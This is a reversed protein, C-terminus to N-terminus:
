TCKQLFLKFERAKGMSDKSKRNANDVMLSYRFDDEMFLYYHSFPASTEMLSVLDCTQKRVQRGLVYCRWFDTMCTSTAMLIDAVINSGGSETLDCLASHRMLSHCVEISLLVVELLLDRQATGKVIVEYISATDDCRGPRNTPNDLDNPDETDPAPDPLVGTNELMRVYVRAKAVFVDDAPGTDIRGQVQTM